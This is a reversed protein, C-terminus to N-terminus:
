LRGAKLQRGSRPAMEGKLYSDRWTEISKPLRLGSRTRTAAVYILNIEEDFEAETMKEAELDADCLNLFDDAVEVSDWELGKARHASSLTIRAHQPGVASASLRRLIDPLQGAWREVLGVMRKLEADQADRNEAMEKIEGFSKFRRIYRTKVAGANKAWLHYVDMLEEFGYKADPKFNERDVTGAFHIAKQGNAILINARDLITSNTRAIFAQSRVEDMTGLGTIRVGDGKWENLIDSALDAIPQAFRFSQTLAYVRAEDIQLAREVFNTAGRFRYISQHKDGVLVVAMGETRQFSVFEATVPNTDQAEDLLVTDIYKLPSKELVFLKLYGDHSLPISSDECIMERWYKRTVKLVEKWYESSAGAESAGLHQIGPEKDTSLLFERLADRVQVASFGNALRFYDKIEAPRLERGLKSAGFRKCMAGYAVGHMTSVRVNDPFVRRAAEAVTKNFCLYLFNQRPHAEALLRLTTSKGSGAYANVVILSGRNLPDDCIHAQESTLKMCDGTV